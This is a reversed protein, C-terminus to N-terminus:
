ASGNFALRSFRRTIPDYLAGWYDSGGDCVSVASRPWNPHDDDSRFANIYVLKRGGVVVGVYQRFYSGPDKVRASLFCCESSKLRALRPLDLELQEVIDKTISWTEGVESLGSRSCLRLARQGEEEPLVTSHEPLVSSSACSLLLALIPLTGKLRMVNSM